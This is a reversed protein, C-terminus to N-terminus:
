FGSHFNLTNELYGGALRFAGKELVKWGMGATKVQLHKRPRLAVSAGGEWLYFYVIAAVRESYDTHSPM